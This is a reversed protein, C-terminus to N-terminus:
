PLPLLCEKVLNGGGKIMDALLGDSGPSKGRKLRRICASLEDLTVDDNLCANDPDPTSVGPAAPRKPAPPREAGM